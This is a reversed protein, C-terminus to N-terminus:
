DSFIAIIPASSKTERSSMTAVELVLRQESTMAKSSRSSRMWPGLMSSALSPPRSLGGGDREVVLRDM